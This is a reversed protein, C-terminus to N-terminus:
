KPVRAAGTSGSHWWLSALVMGPSGHGGFRLGLDDWDHGFLQKCYAVDASAMLITTGMRGRLYAELSCNLNTGFRGGPSCFSLYGLMWADM